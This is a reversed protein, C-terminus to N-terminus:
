FLIGYCSDVYEDGIKKKRIVNEFKIDRSNQILKFFENDDVKFIMIDNPTEHECLCIGAHIMEKTMENESLNLSKRVYLKLVM